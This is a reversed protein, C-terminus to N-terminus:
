LVQLVDATTVSDRHLRTEFIDQHQAPLPYLCTCDSPPNGGCIYNNIFNNERSRATRISICNVPYSDTKVQILPTETKVVPFKWQYNIISSSTVSFVNIHFLVLAIILIIM